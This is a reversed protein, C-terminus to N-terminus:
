DFRVTSSVESVIFKCISIADTDLYNPTDAMFFKAHFTTSEKKNDKMELKIESQREQASIKRDQNQERTKMM